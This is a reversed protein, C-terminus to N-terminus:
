HGDGLKHNIRILPLQSAPMRNGFTRSEVRLGDVPSGTSEPGTIGYGQPREFQRRRSIPRHILATYFSGHGDDLQLETAQATRRHTRQGQLRKSHKQVALTLKDMREVFQEQVVQRLDLNTGQPPLTM